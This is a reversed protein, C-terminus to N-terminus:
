CVDFWYNTLITTSVCYNLSVSLDDNDNNNSSYSGVKAVITNSATPLFPEM